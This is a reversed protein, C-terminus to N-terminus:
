EMGVLKNYKKNLKTATLYIDEVAEEKTMHKTKMKKQLLEDFTLNPRKRELKMRNEVDAMLGRTQKRYLNRLEFAQKAQEEFSLSRDVLKPIDVVKNYYWERATLNDLSERPM